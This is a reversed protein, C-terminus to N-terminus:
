TLHWLQMEGQCRQRLQLTGNVEGHPKLQLGALKFPSNTAVAWAASFHPFTSEDGWQALRNYMDDMSESEYVGNLNKLENITGEIGGEASSGNDGIVYMVLTNDLKGLQDISDVLRGIQDDTQEMFGAYAEM